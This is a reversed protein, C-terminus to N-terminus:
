KRVAKQIDKMLKEYYPMLESNDYKREARLVLSISERLEAINECFNIYELDRIWDYCGILKPSKSNIVACPTETIAAFIMGHLRDTIVLEASRFKSWFYELEAKRQPIPINEAQVTDLHEVKDGYLERVVALLHQEEEQSITKEIDRRLCLICGDRVQAPESKNLAFVMDPVMQVNHYLAKMKQYSIKERAYLYLKNHKNYIRVSENLEKQGWESNEYFFTNPLCMITSKPNDQILKRFLKEVGFWLTGLNGGGNVLIPRRNMYNIINRRYYEELKNGTIEYYPIKLKELLETESVAIAHDGLNGHTPTFVLFVGTPNKMKWKQIPWWFNIFEYKREHLWGHLRRLTYLLDKM